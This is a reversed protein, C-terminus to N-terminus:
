CQLVQLASPCYITMYQPFGPGLLGYHRATQLMVCRSSEEHQVSIKGDGGGKKGWVMLKTKIIM